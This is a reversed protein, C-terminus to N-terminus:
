NAQRHIFTPLETEDESFVFDNSGPNHTRAQNKAHNRIYAPINTDDESMGMPYATNLTSQAAHTYTAQTAYSVNAHEVQQAAVKPQQTFEITSATTKKPTPVLQSTMDLGTAVVTVTLEDGADEDIAMAIIIDADEGVFDTIYSNAEGFEDILLDSTATINVLLGKAGQISVDELLTSSIAAKAAELARHEGSAKGTGMLAMGREKMITKVDAFDANIVGPCTILDTVGRVASYLVENAMILMDVLKANKPGSNQLRSNPIVILSDIHESLESIGLEAASMRRPGEYQFPKTVVGVTLAGQEKAVKAIVPAAGTGTGGGMGATIFVMDSDGIEKRIEEIAEEAAQKGIDPKAGAGLGKTLAKGLQITTDATSKALAQADTNAAVFRVGGLQSDIMQQVANGGGGGVGFVLIKATQDEYNLSIDM